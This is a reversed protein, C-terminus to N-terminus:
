RVRANSRARDRGLGTAVVTARGRDRSRIGRFTVRRAGPGAVRLLRRGDRLRLRVDFGLAGGPQRWSVTLKRGRQRTRVRQPRKVHFAGASFRAVRRQVRPVGRYSVVAVVSREGKGGRAPRFRIQGKGGRVRGLTHALGPGREVFRIQQGAVRRARWRLVRKGSAARRVSATVRPAPLLGARGVQALPASGAQPTAVYDGAAPQNVVVYTTSEEPSELLYARDTLAAGAASGAIAFGGPGTVTVRPAGGRGRIALLAVRQGGALRITATGAQSAVATKPVTVDGFDCGGTFMHPSGGWRYTVGGGVSGFLVKKRGCAGMGRSSLLAEAEISGLLPLSIAGGGQAQFADLGEIWGDVKGNFGAKLLEFGLEGGFTVDLGTRYVVSASGLKFSALSFAGGLTWTDYSSGNEWSVSGSGELAALSRGFVTLKPGGTFATDGSLKLPDVAVGIGIRQLFLVQGLPM